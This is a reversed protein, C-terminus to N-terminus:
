PESPESAPWEPTTPPPTPVSATSPPHIAEPPPPSESHVDYNLLAVHGGSDEDVIAVIDACQHIFGSFNGCKLAREDFSPMLRKIISKLGSKAVYNEGRREVLQLMARHLVKRAEEMTPISEVTSPPMDEDSAPLFNTSIDSQAAPTPLPPSPPHEVDEELPILAEFFKFENCSAAWFKNSFGSVGVGAVFKGSQKIKQALSIFDSDSSIVLVHTLHPYAYVDGLADLALRIDASNKMNKGRPFMQILDVGAINLMHRYSAFWQWNGYAKNIIIDGFSAAYELVPALEFFIPQEVLYNKRYAGPGHAKDAMVAHLNEFDWYIAVKGPLTQESIDSTM